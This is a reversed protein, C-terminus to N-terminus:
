DTLSADNGVKVYDCGALKLICLGCFTRTSTYSMICLTDRDHATADVGGPDRVGPNHGPAHALFLAHGIEHSTIWWRVDHTFQFVIGRLHDGRSVSPVFMGGINNSGDQQNHIGMGGFKM